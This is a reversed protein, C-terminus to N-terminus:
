SERHAQRAPELRDRTQRDSDPQARGLAEPDAKVAIMLAVTGRRVLHEHDLTGLEITEIVDDRRM